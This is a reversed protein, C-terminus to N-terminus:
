RQEIVITLSLYCVTQIAVAIIVWVFTVEDGYLTQISVKKFQENYFHCVISYTSYYMTFLPNTFFFLSYVLSMWLSDSGVQYLLAAPALTGLVLQWIINWRSALDKSLHFFTGIFYSMSVIGLGCLLLTGILLGTYDVFPQQGIFLVVLITLSCPVLYILYDACLM